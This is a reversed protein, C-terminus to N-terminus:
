EIQLSCFFAFVIFATAPLFFFKSIFPLLSRSYFIRRRTAILLLRRLSVIWSQPLSFAPLSNRFLLTGFASFSPAPPTPCTRLLPPSFVPSFPCTLPFFLLCQRLSHILFSCLFASIRTFPLFYTILSFNLSSVAFVFYAEPSSYPVPDYILFRNEGDPSFIFCCSTPAALPSDVSEASVSFPLLLHCGTSPTFGPPGRSILCAPFVDTCRSLDGVLLILYFRVTTLICVFFTSGHESLLRFFSFSAERGRSPDASRTVTLRPSLSLFILPFSQIGHFALVGFQGIQLPACAPEDFSFFVDTPVDPV